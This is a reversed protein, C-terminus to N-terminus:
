NNSSKNAWPLAWRAGAPHQVCVYDCHAAPIYKVVITTKIIESNSSEFIHEYDITTHLFIRSLIIKLFVHM